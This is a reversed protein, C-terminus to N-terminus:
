KFYGDVVEMEFMKCYFQMSSFVSSVGSFVFKRLSLMM